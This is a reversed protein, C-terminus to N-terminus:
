TFTIRYHHSLPHHYQYMARSTNLDIVVRTQKAENAALKTESTNKKTKTMKLNNEKAKKGSKMSQAFLSEGYELM